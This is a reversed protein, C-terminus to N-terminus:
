KPSIDLVHLGRSAGPLRTAAPRQPLVTHLATSTDDPGRDASGTSFAEPLLPGNRLPSVTDVTAEESAQSHRSWSRQNTAKSLKGQQINVFQSTSQPWLM